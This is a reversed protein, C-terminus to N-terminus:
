ERRYDLDDDAVDDDRHDDGDDPDRVHPDRQEDFVGDGDDLHLVVELDTDGGGAPVPETLPM